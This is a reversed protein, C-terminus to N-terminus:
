TTFAEESCGHRSENTNDDQYTSDDDDDKEVVSTSGRGPIGGIINDNKEPPGCAVFGGGYSSVVSSNTATHYPIPPNESDIAAVNDATTDDQVSPDASGLTLSVASRQQVNKPCFGKFCDAV